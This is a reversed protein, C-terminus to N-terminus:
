QTVPRRNNIIFLLMVGRRCSYRVSTITFNETDILVGNGRGRCDEPTRRGRGVVRSPPPVLRNSRKAKIEYFFFFFPAGRGFTPPVFGPRPGM